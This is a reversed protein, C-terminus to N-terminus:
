GVQNLVLPPDAWNFSDGDFNLGEYAAPSRMQWDSTFTPSWQDGTDIVDGDGDVYAGRVHFAYSWTGAPGASAPVDITWGLLTHTLPACRASSIATGPPAVAVCVQGPGPTVYTDWNGSLIFGFHDRCNPACRPTGGSGSAPTGASGGSPTGSGGPPTAPPEISCQSAPPLAPNCAIWGHDFQQHYCRTGYSRYLVAQGLPFGLDASHHGDLWLQYLPQSVGYMPGTNRGLFYGPTAYLPSATTLGARSLWHFEQAWGAGGAVQETDEAPWYMYQTREGIPTTTIAEPDGPHRYASLIPDRVLYFASPGQGSLWYIASTVGGRVFDGYMGFAACCPGEDVPQMDAAPYGIQDHATGGGHALWGALVGGGILHAGAPDNSDNATAVLQYGEDGHSFPAHHALGDATVAMDAVPYGVGAARGLDQWKALIAGGLYASGGATAFIAYDVGARDFYAYRTGDADRAVDQAPYGIPYGTSTCGGLALFKTLVAGYLVHAGTPRTWFISGGDFDEYQGVGDACPQLAAHASGLWLNACYTAAVVAAPTPAPKGTGVTQKQACAWNIAIPQTPPPPAGPAAHAAPLAATVAATGLLALSCAFRTFHQRNLHTM